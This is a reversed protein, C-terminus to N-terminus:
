WEQFFKHYKGQPQWNIWIYVQLQQHGDKSGILFFTGSLLALLSCFLALSLSLHQSVDGSGKTWSPRFRSRDRFMECCHATFFHPRPFGPSASVREPIHLTKFNNKCYYFIVYIKWEWKRLLIFQTQGHLANFSSASIYICSNEILDSM